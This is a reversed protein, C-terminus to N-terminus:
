VISRLQPAALSAKTHRSFRIPNGFNLEAHNQVNPRQQHHPKRQPHHESPNRSIDVLAHNLPNQVQM